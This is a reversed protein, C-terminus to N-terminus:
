LSGKQKAKASYGMFEKDTMEKIDDKEESPITMEDIVLTASAAGESLHLNTMKVKVVIEYDEGIKWQKIEPLEKETVYLSPKMMDMTTPEM